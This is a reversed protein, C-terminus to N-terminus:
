GKGNQNISGLKKERDEISKRIKAQIKQIHSLRRPDNKDNLNIKKVNDVVPEQIHVTEIEQINYTIIDRNNRSPFLDFSDSRDTFINM